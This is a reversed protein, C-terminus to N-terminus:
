ERFLLGKLRSLIIAVEDRTLVVPLRRQRRAREFKGFDGLSKKLVDRYLFVIANLAQNQTSAAVQRVSALYSLYDRVHDKTLTEPHRKGHFFIYRRIWHIYTQETRYSLHRLRCVQRAEDLLKPQKKGQRGTDM